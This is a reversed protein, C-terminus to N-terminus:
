VWMQIMLSSVITASFRCGQSAFTFGHFNSIGCYWFIGRPCVEVLDMHSETKKILVSNTLQSIESDVCCEQDCSQNSELDSDKAADNSAVVGDKYSEIDESSCSGCWIMNYVVTGVTMITILHTGEQDSRKSKSFFNSLSSQQESVKRIAM